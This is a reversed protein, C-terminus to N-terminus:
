HGKDNNHGMTKSNCMGAECEQIESCLDGKQGLVEGWSANRDRHTHTDRERERERERQGEARKM